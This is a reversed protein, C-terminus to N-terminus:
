LKRAIQAVPEPFVLSAPERPALGPPPGLSRQSAVVAVEEVVVPEPGQRVPLVPIVGLLLIALLAEGDNVLRYLEMVIGVEGVDVVECNIRQM